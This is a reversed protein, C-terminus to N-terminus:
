MLECLSTLWGVISFEGSMKLKGTSVNETVFGFVAGLFFEDLV